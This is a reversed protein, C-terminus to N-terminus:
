RRLRGRRAIYQCTGMTGNTGPMGPDPYQHISRSRAWTQAADSFDDSADRSTTWAPRSALWSRLHKQWSNWVAIAAKEEGLLQTFMGRWCFSLTRLHQDIRLNPLPTDNTAHYVEIVLPPDGLLTREHLRRFILDRRTSNIPPEDISFIAKSHDVDDSFGLLHFGHDSPTTADPFRSQFAARNERDWEDVM